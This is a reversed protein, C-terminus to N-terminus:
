NAPQAAASWGGPSDAARSLVSASGSHSSPCASGGCSADCGSSGLGLASSGNSPECDSGNVGAAVALPM